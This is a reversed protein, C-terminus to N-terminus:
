PRAHEPPEGGGVRSRFVVPGTWAQYLGSSNDMWLPVLTNGVSSLAINDGQYGQGLGGIPSPRFHHDGVEIETWTAGGDTSRGLFVGASDATTTRDDYYLVNVGGGDDVHVVPFYQYKGNNPADRNVRIGGSWNAGNDTSRHLIVDPDSGAPALNRETTVVYIWGHRAGGSLDVALRPLGNVRINSKSAFVGAIGNMDFANEDVAWTAGGDTSRAFGAYDETFPSTNIVGAWVVNVSGGPGMAVEGGQCRQPPSNVQLPTSWTAGGDNTFSTMVPFPPAFKVWAAYSRGYRASSPDGDTALTARDQDDTAITRQGSWTAGRDTSTHAYLGPISGLRILVFRGDKDIAIGPDGRHFTIPAGACTDRGAWTAGADTTLYIGESIFGTGLNITNAAALLARPNRPDRALFTETQTVASPHIRFNAGVRALEADTEPAPRPAAGLVLAALALGALARANM